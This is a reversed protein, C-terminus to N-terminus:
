KITRLSSVETILWQKEMKQLVFKLEHVIENKEGNLDILATLQATASQKDPAIELEVGPFHIQAQKVNAQVALLAERLEARDTIPGFDRGRGQFHISINASFLDVLQNAKALRVLMSEGSEISALHSLRQLRARIQKEDSPFLVFYGWLLLSLGALVWVGRIM